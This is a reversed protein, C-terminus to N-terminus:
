CVFDILWKVANVRSYFNRGERFKIEAKVYMRERGCMCCVCVCVRLQRGAM